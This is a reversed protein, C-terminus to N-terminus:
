ACKQKMWWLINPTNTNICSWTSSRTRGYDHLNLLFEGWHRHAKEHQFWWLGPVPLKSVKTIWIISISAWRFCTPEKISKRKKYESQRSSSLWNSIQLAVDHWAYMCIYISVALQHKLIRVQDFRTYLHPYISLHMRPYRYQYTCIHIKWIHSFTRYFLVLCDRCTHIFPKHYTLIKNYAVHMSSANWFSITWVLIHFYCSQKLILM